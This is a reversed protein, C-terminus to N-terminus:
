RQSVTSQVRSIPRLTLHTYLVACKAVDSLTTTLILWLPGAFMTPGVDGTVIDTDLEGSVFLIGAGAWSLSVAVCADGVGVAVVFAFALAVFAPTSRVTSVVDSDTVSLAVERTVSMGSVVAVATGVM